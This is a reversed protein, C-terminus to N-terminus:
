LYVNALASVLFCVERRPLGPKRITDINMSSYSLTLDLDTYITPAQTHRSEAWLREGCGARLNGPHYNALLCWRIAQSNSTVRERRLM